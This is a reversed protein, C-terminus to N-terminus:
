VPLNEPLSNKLLSNKPLSKEPLSLHLVTRGIHQNFSEAKLEFGYNSYFSCGIINDKAVFVELHEHLTQAKSMLAQGIGKGHFSPELFLACIQHGLLSIFGQVKGHIEVVWTDTNPLYLNAVHLRDQAIFEDSMFSCSFRTAAEWSCLVDELDQKTYRRIIM